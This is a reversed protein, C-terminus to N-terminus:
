MHWYAHIRNNRLDRRVGALLVQVEAASFGLGGEYTPRTLIALSLAEIGNVSNEYSWIGQLKGLNAYLVPRRGERQLPLLSVLFFFILSPSVLTGLNKYKTEKPWHNMPWKEKVIEIDVFGAEALQQGYSLVSDIYRGSKRFGEHVLSGWYHLVSDEPLTGDDCAIPYM